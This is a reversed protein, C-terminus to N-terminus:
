TDEGADPQVFEVQIASQIPNGNPGSIEQKEALGIFKGIQSWASVRASHSTGDGTATAEQYLGMLVQDATIQTRQSREQKREAIEASVKDNRLLRHGQVEASRAAYGARKAAETANLDKLYEEVFRQQKDRLTM